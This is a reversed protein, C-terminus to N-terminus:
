PQLSLRQAIREILIEARALREAQEDTQAQHVAFQIDVCGSPPCGENFTSIQEQVMDPVAPGHSRAVMHIEANKVDQLGPGFLVNTMDGVMLRAGYDAKGYADAVRGTAYLVSVGADVNGPPPLVDDEDCVGGTCNEPRNFVVWWITAAENPELTTLFTGTVGDASRVLTSLGGEVTSGDAFRRVAGSTATEGSAIGAFLGVTVATLLTKRSTLM